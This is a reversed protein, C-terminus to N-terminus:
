CQIARITTGVGPQSAVTLRFDIVAARAEMIGMGMGSGYNRRNSAGIGCDPAQLLFGCGNDTISLSLKDKILDLRMVLVTARAHSITNNLAQQAIRFLNNAIHHDAIDIPEDYAVSCNFDAVCASLM